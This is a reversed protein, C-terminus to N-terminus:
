ESILNYQKNTVEFSSKYCEKTDPDKNSVRQKLEDHGDIADEKIQHIRCRLLEREVFYDTVFNEVIMENLPGGSFLELTNEVGSGHM